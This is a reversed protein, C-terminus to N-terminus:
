NIAAVGCAIRGGSNGSPDTKYDDPDAHIVVAAGDADLLPRDGGTLRAGPITAELKGRGDTGILLNPLDGMHPGGPADRGHVMATPNWHSGATTFGPADCRGVMHVHLGHAGQPLGWADVALRVGANMETLTATAVEKGNADVLRASAAGGSPAASAGDASSSGTMCGGLLAAASLALMMTGRM